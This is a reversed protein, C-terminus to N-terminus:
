SQLQRPEERLSEALRGGGVMTGDPEIGRPNADALATLCAGFDRMGKAKGVARM